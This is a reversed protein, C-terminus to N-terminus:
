KIARRAESKNFIFKEFDWFIYTHAELKNLLQIFEFKNRLPQSLRRYCFNFIVVHVKSLFRLLSNHLLRQCLLRKIITFFIM